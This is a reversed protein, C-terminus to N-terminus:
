SDTLQYGYGYSTELLLCPMKKRLRYVLEDVARDIVYYDLGWVQQVIQERSLVLGPNKVFLLLLDFERTTLKIQKDDKTVFRREINIKYPPLLYTKQFTVIKEPLTTTYVRELLKRCRLILEEPLFPKCLYDESGMELGLIRDIDTDRSSIFIVPLMPSKKKIEKILQYGNFRPLIIDVIWLHPENIIEARATEGDFFSQVRWSEKQLFASLAQNLNEDDEVLYILYDM